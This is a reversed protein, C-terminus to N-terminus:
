SSSIPSDGIRFYIGHEDHVKTISWQYVRSLQESHMVEDIEGTAIIQGQNMLIVYDAYQAALNLDHLVMIVTLQSKERQLFQMLQHQHRIDLHNCPEDLLLVPSEQMLARVINARQQEGGSLSDIRKDVLHTLDFQELLSSLRASNEPQKSFLSQRQVSLCVYERVTLPLGYRGNQPVWSVKGQKIQSLIPQGFLRVGGGYRGLLTRLLTSKGAGNPGIIATHQQPIVMHETQLILRDRVRVVLKQWEFLTSNM